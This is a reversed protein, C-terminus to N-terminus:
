GSAPEPATTVEEGALFRTIPRGATRLIFALAGGLIVLTAAVFVWRTGVMVNVIGTLMSGMLVGSGFSTAQLSMVTAMGLERGIEMQLAQTSVQAISNGVGVGLMFGVVIVWYEDVIAPTLYGAAVLIAGGMILMRRDFRDALMESIPQMAGNTVHQVALVAGVMTATAGMDRELFIAVFTFSAGMAFALSTGVLYLGQVCPHRLTTSWPVAPLADVDGNRIRRSKPLLIAMAISAAAFMVAMSIFVTDMDYQDRIIGALLPEVGFGSAIFIGFAGMHRGERGEPASDGVYAQSLSFILALGIGSFARFAITWFM